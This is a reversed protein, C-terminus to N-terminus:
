TNDEERYPSKREELIEPLYDLAWAKLKPAERGACNHGGGEWFARCLDDPLPVADDPVADDDMTMPLGDNGYDGSLTFWHGKINANGMMWHGLQRMAVQRVLAYLQPRMDIDSNRTMLILFPARPACLQTGRYYVHNHTLYM